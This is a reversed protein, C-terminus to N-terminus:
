GRLGTANMWVSMARLLETFGGGALGPQGSAQTDFPIAAGRDFETWRYPGLQTFPQADVAAAVVGKMEEASPEAVFRRATVRATNALETLRSTFSSLTRREAEGRFLGHDSTDGARRTAIAEGTTPDREITWKGQWLATTYLTRDRPRVE